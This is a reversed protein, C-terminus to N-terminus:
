SYKEYTYMCLYYAHYIWGNYTFNDIWGDMIWKDIFYEIWGNISGDM